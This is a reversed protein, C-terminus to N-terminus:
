GKQASDFNLSKVLKWMLYPGAFIFGLFMFIPWSSPKNSGPQLLEFPDSSADSSSLNNWLSEVDAPKIKSIGICIGSNSYGCRNLFNLLLMGVLYLFRRFVWKFFRFITLASLIQKVRGLHDAVGIVARFSSYLAHFTSEMMSSISCFAGVFSEISQFAPSASAEAIQSFSPEEMQGFNSGFGYGGFPRNGYPNMGYSGGFGSSYSLPSSYMGSGYPSSYPSAGGGYPMMSRSNYASYIPRVQNARPPIPPLETSTSPIQSSFSGGGGGGGEGGPFPIASSHM